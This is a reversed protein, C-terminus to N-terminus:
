KIKVGIELNLLPNIATNYNSLIMLNAGWYIPIDGVLTGRTYRIAPFFHFRGPLFVRKIEDDEVNFTKPLFSRFLGAQLSVRQFKSKKKTKRKEYAIGSSLFSGVHVTPVWYFGVNAELGLLKEIQVKKESNFFSNRSKIKSKLVREYGGAIGPSTLMSGFYGVTFQYKKTSTSDDIEVAHGLLTGLMFLVSLLPKM